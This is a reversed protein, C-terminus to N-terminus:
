DNGKTAGRITKVITTAIRTGITTATGSGDFNLVGM